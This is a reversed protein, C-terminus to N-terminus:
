SPVQAAIWKRYNEWSADDIQFDPYDSGHISLRARRVGTGRDKKERELTFEFPGAVQLSRGGEAVFFATTGLLKAQWHPTTPLDIALEDTQPDAHQIERALDDVWALQDASPREAFLVRLQNYSKFRAISQTLMLVGFILGVPNPGMGNAMRIGTIIFNFAAFTLLVLADLLIGEASPHVFKFLGVGFEGLALAIYILFIFDVVGAPPMVIYALFLMLLAFGVNGRGSRQVQRCLDRYAIVRRLQMQMMLDELM